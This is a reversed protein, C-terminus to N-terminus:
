GQGERILSVWRPMALTFVAIVPLWAGVAPSVLGGSVASTCVAVLLYGVFVLAMAETLAGSISRKRWPASLWPFGLLVLMFGMLPIAFRNHFSLVYEAVSLGRRQLEDISASLEALRKQQPRGSLDRFREPGETLPIAKQEWTQWQTQNGRSFRREEVGSGLWSDGQWEMTRLDTRKKVHFQADMELITVSKMLKGDRSKEQVRFLRGEDGQHWQHNRFFRWTSDIRGFSRIMLPEMLNLAPPIVYEQVAFTAAMVFAAVVMLPTFLRGQSIGAAALARLQQSGGLLAFVICTSGVLAVPLLLNLWTPLRLLIMLFVESSTGKGSLLFQAQEFFDLVLALVMLISLVIILIRSQLGIMMREIIM